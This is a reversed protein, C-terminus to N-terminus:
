VPSIAPFGVVHRPEVSDPADDGARGNCQIFHHDFPRLHGGRSNNLCRVGGLLLRDLSSRRAPFGERRKYTRHFFVQAPMRGIPGIQPKQGGLQSLPTAIRANESFRKFLNRCLFRRCNDVVSYNIGPPPVGPCENLWFSSNM